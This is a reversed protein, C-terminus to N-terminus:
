KYDLKNVMYTNILEDQIYITVCRLFEEHIYGTQSIVQALQDYFLAKSRPCSKVATLVKEISFVM